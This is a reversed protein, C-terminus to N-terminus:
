DLRDLFEDIKEELNSIRKDCRHSSTACMCFRDPIASVFHSTDLRRDFIRDPGNHKGWGGFICLMPRRYAMAAPVLWGVGGIVGAAGAVLALLAEIGLEGAHYRVDAPPLEGVPWEADSQLDAVSVVLFGAARAAACATAIYEPKPNRSDARWERRVTAPRVVVYPPAPIRPDDIPDPGRMNISKPSIRLDACLAELISGGGGVYHLRRRPVRAPAHVYGPAMRANKAQTRLRTVGPRVPKIHDIDRYLQPWCTVLYLDSAPKYARLVARQYLNDGLGQMGDILLSDVRTRPTPKERESTELEGDVIGAIGVRVLDCGRQYPAINCEPVHIPRDRPDGCWFETGAPIRHGEVGGYARKIKILM